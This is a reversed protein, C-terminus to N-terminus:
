DLSRSSRMPDNRAVTLLNCCSTKVLPAVVCTISSTRQPGCGEELYQPTLSLEGSEVTDRVEAEQVGEDLCVMIYAAMSQPRPSHFDHDPQPAKAKSLILSREPLILYVLCNKGAQRSFVQLLKANGRQPVAALQEIRNGGQAGIRAALRGGSLTAVVGGLGSRREGFRASRRWTAPSRASRTPEVAREARM